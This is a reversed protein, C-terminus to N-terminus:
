CPCQLSCLCQHVDPYLTPTRTLTATSSVASRMKNHESTWWWIWRKEREVLVPLPSLQPLVKLIIHKFVSAPLFYQENTPFWLQPHKFVLSHFLISPSSHHLHQIQKLEKTWWYLLWFTLSNRIDKVSKWLRLHFRLHTFTTWGVTWLYKISIISYLLLDEWKLLKELVRSHKANQKIFLKFPTKNILIYQKLMLMDSLLKSQSLVEM